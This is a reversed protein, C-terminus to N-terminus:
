SHQKESVLYLDIIQILKDSIQALSGPTLPYIITDHEQLLTLDQHVGNM